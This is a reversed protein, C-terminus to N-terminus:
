KRAAGEGFLVGQEAGASEDAGTEVFRVGVGLLRV